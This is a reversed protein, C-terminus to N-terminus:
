TSGGGGRGRGRGGGSGRERGGGDEERGGEGKGKERVGKRDICTSKHNTQEEQLIYLITVVKCGGNQPCQFHCVNHVIYTFNTTM